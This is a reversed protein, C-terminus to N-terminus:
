DPKKIYKSCVNEGIRHLPDDHLNRYRLLMQRM